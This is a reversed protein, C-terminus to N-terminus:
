SKRDVGKIRINEGAWLRGNRKLGMKDSIILIATPSVCILIETMDKM